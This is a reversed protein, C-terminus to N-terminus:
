IKLYSKDTIYNKTHAEYITSSVNKTFTDSINETTKVFIIKIFGEEIFETLFRYRLDLHKARQSTSTNKAMFIAGVNDVRCVIPLRVELGMSILVQAIFKIEKAAESLAVLEAKSSSLTVSKQGKSRWCIPVGQLFKIYGSVSIRTDKDGAWDSDSYLILDWKGDTSLVNPEIKLGYDKTDIVFKIVRKLEKMAAPTPKDMLKSLERTANAINPRSHKVLYLLMGVRSRYLSHDENDVVTDQETPRRLGNNPTGPM